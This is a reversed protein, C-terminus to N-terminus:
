LYEQANKWFRTTSEADPRIEIIRAQSAGLKEASAETFREYPLRWLRAWAELEFDHSNLYEPRSFIRDFIKGGGNNIVIIKWDTDGQTQTLQGAIWPGSLDYLATLDGIIAWHSRGPSTMGLFTSVQGDIGNLGRSAQIEIGRSMPIAGLDWERIPLSNGLYVLSNKQIAQSICHFWGPESVAEEHLLAHLADYRKRDESCWRNFKAASVQSGCGESFFSVLSTKLARSGPLGSFGTGSVSFVPLQFKVELDRWLRLTPVGGLRIVGDIPYGSETARSLARSHTRIRLHDLDPAERLQSTAETIVPAGLRVLFPIAARAEQPTLAGLIVLPNKLGAVFAEFESRSAPPTPLDGVTKASATVSGSNDPLPEEFCLNLHAPGLISDHLPAYTHLDWDGLERAYIGFIGKQECAQPAGSGRFRKPRDATVLMLPVDTYHAEMTAPLLEGVATGSTTVVACARNELRARGLAFFAASREDYFYLLELDSSKATDDRMRVLTEVLPSNRAGPCICFTRTGLTTLSNIAHAALALNDLLRADSM